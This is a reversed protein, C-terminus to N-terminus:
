LNREPKAIEVIGEVLSFGRLLMHIEDYLYENLKTTMDIYVNIIKEAHTSNWKLMDYPIQTIPYKRNDYDYKSDVRIKTFRSKMHAIKNRLKMIELYANFPYESENFTVIKNRDIYDLYKSCLLPAKLWRMKLNRGKIEDEVGVYQYVTNIFSEFAMIITIIAVRSFQKELDSDVNRAKQALSLTNKADSYLLYAFNEKYIATTEDLYNNEKFINVIDIMYMKILLANYFKEKIKTSKV